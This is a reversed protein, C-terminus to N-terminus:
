MDEFIVEGIYDLNKQIGGGLLPAPPMINEPQGDKRGDKEGDTIFKASLTVFFFLFFFGQFKAHIHIPPSIRGILKQTCM